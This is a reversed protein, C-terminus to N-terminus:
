CIRHFDFFIKCPELNEMIEATSGGIGGGVIETEPEHQSRRHQQQQQLQQQQEIKSRSSERREQRQQRRQRSHNRESNDPQAPSGVSTRNAVKSSVAYFQERDRKQREQERHRHGRSSGSDFSGM